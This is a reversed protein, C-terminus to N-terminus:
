CYPLRLGKERWPMSVLKGTTSLTIYAVDLGPGGFCINTPMPEPMKVVDLIEGAPSVTTIEGSVLTAVVINGEATIALSDLRRFGPFQCLMNGGHPSPWPSKRLRGPGLIDFAWLRGTETEAVYLTEGEPSIGIGNAGGPVPHAAEVIRSGDLAAWYVGGHDRDRARSKGLDSFWFGGKGDLQLDNPGKLSVDGCRDYLTRVAGTAMDVVEIRGTTYDAAQGTPRLQGPADHWTFGGNNCLILTGDPGAALGNPGGGPTAIVSTTGDPAVRTVTGRAIEVLAISGDPLAVPGEPFRLGEALTTLEM